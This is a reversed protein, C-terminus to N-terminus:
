CHDCLRVQVLGVAKNAEDRASATSSKIANSATTLSEDFALSASAFQDRLVDQPNRSSGSEGM